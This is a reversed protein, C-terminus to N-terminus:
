IGISAGEGIPAFSKLHAIVPHNTGLRALKEVLWEIPSAIEIILAIHRDERGGHVRPLRHAQRIPQLLEAALRDQDRGIYAIGGRTLMHQETILHHVVFLYMLEGKDDVGMMGFELPRHNILNAQMELRVGRGLITIESNEM